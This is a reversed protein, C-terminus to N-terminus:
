NSIFNKLSKYFTLVWDERPFFNMEFKQNQGIETPKETMVKSGSFRNEYSLFWHVGFKL